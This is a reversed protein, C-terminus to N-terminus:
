KKRFRKHLTDFMLSLLLSDKKGTMKLKNKRCEDKLLTSTLKNLNLQKILHPATGRVPLKQADCENCLEEFSFDNYNKDTGKKAFSISRQTKKKANTIESSTTTRKTTTKKKKCYVNKNLM